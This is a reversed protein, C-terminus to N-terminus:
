VWSRWRGSALGLDVWGNFNGVVVGGGHWLLFFVVLIVFGFCCVWGGGVVGAGVVFLWVM